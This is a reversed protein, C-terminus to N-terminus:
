PYHKQSTIPPKFVHVLFYGMGHANYQLGNQIVIYALRDTQRDTQRDSIQKLSFM